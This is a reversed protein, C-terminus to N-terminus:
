QEHFCCKDRLTLWNSVQPMRARTTLSRVRQRPVGATYGPLSAGSLM